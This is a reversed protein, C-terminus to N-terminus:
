TTFLLLYTCTLTEYVRVQIESRAVFCLIIFVLVPAFNLLMAVYLPLEPYATNIAGFILLFITGPTLISSVFLFTQLM